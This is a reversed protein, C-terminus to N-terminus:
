TDRDFRQAHGNLSYVSRWWESFDVLLQTAYAQYHPSACSISTTMRRSIVTLIADVIRDTERM